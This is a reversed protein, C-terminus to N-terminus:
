KRKRKENKEKNLEKDYDALVCNYLAREEDLRFSRSIRTRRTSFKM